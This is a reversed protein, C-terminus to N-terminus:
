DPELFCRRALLRALAESFPGSMLGVAGMALLVLTVMPHGSFVLALSGAALVTSSIRLSRRLKLCREVAKLSGEVAPRGRALTFAKRLRKAAEDLQGRQILLVHAAFFPPQYLGPALKSALDALLLTSASPVLHVKGARHEM